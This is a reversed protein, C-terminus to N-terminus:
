PPSKAVNQPRRLFIFKVLFFDVACSLILALVFKVKGLWQATDAKSKCVCVCHHSFIESTVDKSQQNSLLNRLSLYATGLCFHFHKYFFM